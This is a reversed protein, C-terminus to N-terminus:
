AFSQRENENRFNTNEDDSTIDKQVMDQINEAIRKQVSKILTDYAGKKGHFQYWNRLLQVKQEATDQPHNNKIEDVKAENIGNRRVFEKVQNITMQEAIYTIYKSLDVDSFYFFTSVTPKFYGTTERNHKRYIWLGCIIAAVPLLLLCLLWLLNSKSDKEKCKTNSTQTCKEIIGHECTICPACHDCSSSSCFFDEKCRCKTNQTRTCHKEVELGHGEDCFRCRRCYDLYNETETYEQGEECHTCNPNGENVSCDATKRTGAPCPQCCLHQEHNPSALYLGKRCGADKKTINKTLELGKHNVANVQANDSGAILTFILSLLVWLGPM